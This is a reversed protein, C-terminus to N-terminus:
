GPSAARIARKREAKSLISWIAPGVDHAADWIEGHRRAALRASDDFHLTALAPGRHPYPRQFWHKGCLVSQPGGTGSFVTFDPTWGGLPASRVELRGSELMERYLAIRSARRPDSRLLRAEADLTLANLEVVLVRMSELGELDEGDLDLTSLRVRTVAVAVDVSQRVNGVFVDRFDPRGREDMLIARQTTLGPLLHGPPTRESSHMSSCPSYWRARGYRFSVDGSARGAHGPM